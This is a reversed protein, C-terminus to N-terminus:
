LNEVGVHESFSQVLVIHVQTVKRDLDAGNKM